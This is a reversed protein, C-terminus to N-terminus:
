LNFAYTKKNHKIARATANIAIYRVLVGRSGSFVAGFIWKTYTYYNTDSCTVTVAANAAPQAYGSLSGIQVWNNGDNSGYITISQPFQYVKNGSWSSSSCNYLSCSSIKIEDPTHWTIDGGSSVSSLYVDTRGSNTADFAKWATDSSDQTSSVTGNSIASTCNPRSWSWTLEQTFNKVISRMQKTVEFYDYNGASSKEPKTGTWWIFGNIKIYSYKLDIVGLFPYYYNSQNHMGITWEGRNSIKTTSNASDELKWQMGNLSLYLNYKSGNFEAKAWYTHGDVLTTPNSANELKAVYTSSTSNNVLFYLKDNNDIGLLSEYGVPQAYIAQANDSHKFTFKFVIEWSNASDTPMYAPVTKLYNASSFGTVTGNSITPNGTIAVNVTNGYRYYTIVNDLLM